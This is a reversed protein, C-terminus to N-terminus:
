QDARRSALRLKGFLEDLLAPLDAASAVGGFVYYDPRIVVAEYGAADLWGRYSGDVDAVAGTGAADEAPDADAPLIAVVHAGLRALSVRTSESLENILDRGSLLVFGTGVVQDFRGTTGDATRVRGQPSLQGAIGAPTGDPGTALVGPGLVPPPIPPLAVEPRGEAKLMVEDRAAVAAPDTLCIVNGLEVSMGIANQIHASRETTYTDLLADGARGSLVLDLKWALNACDRIGSCMGQGAFPPMLHAADGAILVRGARWEDAWRAQFTYVTHRELDANDPTLRWPALLRWATEETNLEEITEGPLGMFEWRRRGPGGSVVTTPRVPDCIQLNFPKWEREQDHPVVDLILWDYFFGLDTQGTGMWERVFSNAGDCGVVYRARITEDGDPGTVVAAVHDAHETLQAASWGRRVRVAPFSEARAALVAELRPQAFMNSAPWGSPGAAGWDFHLLTRGAANQWDYERSPQSVAAVEDGIGAAAFIRAIEDDYHVARPRPYPEAKREVVTVRYGLQALLITLTQGVPGYGVVLVDCGSAAGTAAGAAGPVTM